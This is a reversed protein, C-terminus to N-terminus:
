YHVRPVSDNPWLRAVRNSDSPWSVRGRSVLGLWGGTSRQCPAAGVGDLLYLYSRERRWARPSGGHARTVCNLIDYGFFQFPVFHVEAAGGGSSLLERTICASLM